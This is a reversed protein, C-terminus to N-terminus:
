VACRGSTSRVASSPPGERGSRRNERASAVDKDAAHVTAPSQLLPGPRPSASLPSATHHSASCLRMLM